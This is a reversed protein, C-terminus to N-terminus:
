FRGGYIDYGIAGRVPAWSLEGNFMTYVLSGSESTVRTFTAIVHRDDDEDIRSVLWQGCQGAISVEDGCEFWANWLPVRMVLTILERENYVATLPAAPAAPGPAPAPTTAGAAGLGLAAAGGGAAGLGIWALLRRRTPATVVSDGLRHRASRGSQVAM